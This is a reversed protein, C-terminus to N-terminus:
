EDTFRIASAFSFACTTAITDNCIGIATIANTDIDAITGANGRSYDTVFGLKITKKWLYTSGNTSTSIIAPVLETRDFIHDLLVIYRDPNVTTYNRISDCGGASTFIEGNTTLVGEAAVDRVILFRAALSDASPGYVVQVILDMEVMRVKSGVRAVNSTGQAVANLNVLFPSALTVNSNGASLLIWKNQVPNRYIIQKRNNKNNNNKNQKPAM